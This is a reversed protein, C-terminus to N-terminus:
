AGLPVEHFEADIANGDLDQPGELLVILDEIGGTATVSLSRSPVPGISSRNFILEAASLRASAPAKPNQLIELTANFAASTAVDFRAKVEGTITRSIRPHGLLIAALRPAEAPDTTYGARMAAEAGHLPGGLEFLAAVFAAERPDKLDAITLSRSM